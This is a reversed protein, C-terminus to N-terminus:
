RGPCSSCEGKRGSRRLPVVGPATRVNGASTYRYSQVSSVTSKRASVLWTSLARQGGALYYVPVAASPDLCREVDADLLNREDGIILLGRNDVSRLAQAQLTSLFIQLDKSGVSDQTQVDHGFFSPPKPLQGTIDVVQWDAAVGGTDLWRQLSITAADVKTPWSGAVPLGQRMWAPLGGELWFLQTDTDRMDALQEVERASLLGDSVFVVKDTFRDMLAAFMDLRYELSGPIHAKAYNSSGRIDVIHYGPLHAHLSQPSLPQIWDPLEPVPQPSVGVVKVPIIQAFPAGNEADLGTFNLTVEAPGAGTPTFQIRLPEAAAALTRPFANVQLCPCSSEVKTLLQDAGSFPLKLEFATAQDVPVAGLDFSKLNITPAAQISCFWGCTMLIFACVKM